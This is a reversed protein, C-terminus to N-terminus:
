SATAMPEAPAPVNAPAPCTLAAFLKPEQYPKFLIPLWYGDHKVNVITHGGDYEFGQTLIVRGLPVAKVLSRYAATGGMDKHKIACLVADYTSVKAMAIGDTATTAADVLCGQRELITHASRRIREDGDVVLVRLGALKPDMPVANQRAVEEFINHVALKIKRLDGVIRRLADAFEPQNSIKELLNSTVSLLDDAPLAIERHVQEVVGAAACAEQADLLNLTHLARALERSFLETFQLEEAGFANVEPSEVNFTGVLEDNFVLPVTMSSKAGVSGEIYHPDHATDACLYSKKTAAVYGTVGNGHERAFLARQAAEPIMGEELLPILRGTKPELRRIEIVNYRLLDHIYRRLNVKLLEVRCLVNMEALQDPDLADLEQGAKYLANLKQQRAVASTVDDAMAVLEIVRGNERIPSVTVDLFRNNHNLRFCCPQGALATHFAHDGLRDEDPTNLADFFSLGTPEAPCWERFPNNAWRVILDASLVALGKDLSGVIQEARQLHNGADAMPLGNMPLPDSM